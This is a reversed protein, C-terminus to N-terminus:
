LGAARLHASIQFSTIQDPDYRINVQGNSKHPLVQEVGPLMLLHKVREIWDRRETSDVWLTTWLLQQAM